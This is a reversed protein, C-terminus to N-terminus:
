YDKKKYSYQIASNSMSSFVNNLGEVFDTPETVSPLNVNEIVYSNQATQSNTNTYIGNGTNINSTVSSGVSRLMNRSTTQKLTNIANAVNKTDEKNMVITSASNGGPGPMSALRFGASRAETESDGGGSGSDGEDGGEEGEGEEDGEEPPEGETEYKTVYVTTITITKSYLADISSKLSNASSAASSASSSVSDLSGSFVNMVGTQITTQEGTVVMQKELEDSKNINKDTSETVGDITAGLTEQSQNYIDTHEIHSQVDELRDKLTDFYNTSKEKILEMMKNLGDPGGFEEILKGVEELQKATEQNAEETAKRQAELAANLNGIQNQYEQMADTIDSVMDKSGSVIDDFADGINDVDINGLIDNFDKFDELVDGMMNGLAKDVEGASSGIAGAIAGSDQSLIDDMDISGEALAESIKKLIEANEKGFVDLAKDDTKAIEFIGSISSEMYNKILQEREKKLVDLEKGFEAELKELESAMKAPDNKYKEIIEASRNNFDDLIDMIEQQNLDLSERDFAILDALTQSIDEQANEVEKLDAVYETMWNGSDDRVLRGVMKGSQEQQEAARQKLLLQYQLETRELDRETLNDKERLFQMQKELEETLEKQLKPDQLKSIDSQIKEQLSSVKVVKETTDLYKDQSKELKDLQNTMEDFSMGFLSEQLGHLANEIFQDYQDQLVQVTQAALEVMQHQLDAIQSSTEKWAESGTQGADELKQLYDDLGGILDETGKKQEEIGDIQIKFFKSAQEYGEPGYFESYLDALDEAYGIIREFGELQSDVLDVGESVVEKQLELIEDFIDQVNEFEAVFQAMNEQMLEYKAVADLKPDNVIREMNFAIRDLDSAGLKWTESLHEMKEASRSFGEIMSGEVDKIDRIFRNVDLALNLDIEIGERYNDQMEHYVENLAKTTDIKLQVNAEYKSFVEEIEKVQEQAAERADAGKVANAEAYLNKFIDDKNVITGVDNISFGQEQLLKAYEKTQAEILKIEKTLIDARQSLINNQQELNKVKDYGFAHDFAREYKALKDELVILQKEYKHLIDLEYEIDEVVREEKKKSSSSSPPGGSWGSWPETDFTLDETDLTVSMTDFLGQLEEKTKNIEARLVTLRDLAAGNVIGMRADLAAELEVAAAEAELDAIKRIGTSYTILEETSFLGTQALQILMEESYVGQANVLGQIVGQKLELLTTYQTDIAGIDMGMNVLLQEFLSQNQGLWEQYFAESNGIIEKYVEPTREEIMAMAAFFTETYEETNEINGDMMDNLLSTLGPVEKSVDKFADILEKQASKGLDNFGDVGDGVMKDIADTLDVIPGEAKVIDAEFDEFAEKVDEMQEKISDADVIYIDAAHQAMMNDIEDFTGSMIALMEYSGNQLSVVGSRVYEDLGAELGEQQEKLKLYESEDWSGSSMEAMEKQVRKLDDILAKAKEKERRENIIGTSGIDNVVTKYNDFFDDFDKGAVDLISGVQEAQVRYASMMEVLAIKQENSLTGLSEIQEDTATALYSTFGDAVEKYAEYSYGSTETIAEKILDTDFLFSSAVKANNSLNSYEVNVDRLSRAISQVQGDVERSADQAEQLAQITEKSVGGNEKELNFKAQADELQKETFEIIEQVNGILNPDNVFAAAAERKYEQIVAILEEYSYVNDIVARGLEDYSVEMPNLQEFIEGQRLAVEKLVTAQERQSETYQETSGELIKTAEYYSMSTSELSSMTQQLGLAVGMSRDIEVTSETYAKISDDIEIKLSAMKKATKEAQTEINILLGLIDGGLSGILAGIPGGLLAGIGTTATKIVADVKDNVSAAESGLTQFAMYAQGSVAAFSAMGKALKAIKSENMSPAQRNAVEQQLGAVYQKQQAVKRELTLVEQSQQGNIRRKTELTLMDQNLIQENLSIQRQLDVIERENQAARQVDIGLIKQTTAAAKQLMVNTPQLNTAWGLFSTGVKNVKQLMKIGLVAALPSLVKDLAVGREALENLKGVLETAGSVLDKFPDTGITDFFLKQFENSLEALKAALSDQYILQQQYAYGEANIAKSVADEYM